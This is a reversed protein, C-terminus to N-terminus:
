AADSIPWDRVSIPKGDSSSITVVKRKPLQGLKLIDFSPGANRHEFQLTITVNWFDGKKSPWVEEVTPQGALQGEFIDDVYALAGKVAEKAEM